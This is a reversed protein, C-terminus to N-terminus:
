IGQILNLPPILYTLYLTSTEQIYYIKASVLIFPYIELSKPYDFLKVIVPQKSLLKENMTQHMKDLFRHWVDTLNLM